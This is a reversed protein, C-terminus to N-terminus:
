STEGAPRFLRGDLDGTNVSCRALAFGFLGSHGNKTKKECGCVKGNDKVVEKSIKELTKKFDEDNLAESLAEMLEPPIGNNNGNGGGGGGGGGNGGNINNGGGMGNKM